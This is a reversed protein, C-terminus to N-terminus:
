RGYVFKSSRNNGVTGGGRAQHLTFNINIAFVHSDQEVVLAGGGLPADSQRFDVGNM